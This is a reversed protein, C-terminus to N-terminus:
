GFRSDSLGFTQELYYKALAEVIEGASYLRRIEPSSDADSPFEDSAHATAVRCNDYIYAGVEQDGMDAEFASIANTGLRGRVEDFVSRIWAKTPNVQGRQSRSRSEFVKFFSLVEFTVLGAHHANHGERYYALRQLLDEDEPLEREFMWNQMVTGGLDNRSMHAPAPSGSWGFGLVAHQRDCWVLLSLFRNLLTRAEESTLREHALDISISRAHTKTSPFLVFNKGAFKIRKPEAPWAVAADVHLNLFDSSPRAGLSANFERRQEENEYERWDTKLPLDWHRSIEVDRHLRRLLKPGVVFHRACESRLRDPDYSRAGGPQLLSVAMKSVFHVPRRGREDEVLMTATYDDGGHGSQAIFAVSVVQDCADADGIVVALADGLSETGRFGEDADGVTRLDGLVLAVHGAMGPSSAFGMLVNAIERNSLRVGANERGRPLQGYGRLTELRRSREDEAERLWLSRSLLDMLERARM